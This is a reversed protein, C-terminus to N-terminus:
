GSFLRKPNEKIITNIQEKSVGHEELFPIINKFLHTPHWNSILPIAFDPIKIERGLFKIISDHSLMIRDIYGMSILGLICAYREEDMPCGALLQLGMRDFGINVGKKLVEHHYKIDTVDSMHGILIQDPNAGQSILLDAQELGMTGEQTHTIIPVGTEKQVKAAARFFAAEYETIKGKSSAVKIVGAKISSNGIGEVIEKLFLEYIEQEVDIGIGARSKFYSPAGEEESYFGTSCIINIETRESIERYLEPDRGCDNPTADVFTKVGLKKLNDFTNIAIEIVEDRNYLALTDGYWGPYGFVIHEHILTIGLENVDIYGCVTNVKKM